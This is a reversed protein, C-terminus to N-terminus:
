LYLPYFVHSDHSEAFHHDPQSTVYQNLFLSINESQVKEKIIEKLSEPHLAVEETSFCAQFFDPNVQPPISTKQFLSKPRKGLYTLKENKMYVLYITQLKQFYADVEDPSLMSDKAVLYNFNSSKFKELNVKKGLLYELYPAFYLAVLLLKKGTKM